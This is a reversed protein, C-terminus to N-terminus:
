TSKVRNQRILKILQIPSLIDDQYRHIIRHCNSCLPVLKKLAEQTLQKEGEIDHKHIPKLHHIEIYGRGRKGYLEEFDFGCVSCPLKGNRDLFFKKAIVTLLHSRIRIEQNRYSVRGEEVIVNRYGEKFADKRDKESFGQDYFAKTIEEIGSKAYQRGKETIYYVGSEYTALGKKALADHSKLNRVKQSFRTDTRNKSIEIDKGEPSLRETLIKILNKTKLGNPSEALADLAPVVLDCETYIM